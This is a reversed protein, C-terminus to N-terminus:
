DSFGVPNVTDVDHSSMGLICGLHILLMPCGFRPPVRILQSIGAAKRTSSHEGVSGSSHM